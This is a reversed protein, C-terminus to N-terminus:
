RSAASSAATFSSAEVGVIEEYCERCLGLDTEAHHSTWAVKQPPRDGWCLLSEALGIGIPLGDPGM